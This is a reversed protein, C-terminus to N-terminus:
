VSSNSRKRSHRGLWLQRGCEKCASWALEGCERGVLETEECHYGPEERKEDETDEFMPITLKEAETMRDAEKQIKNTHGRRLEELTTWQQGKHGIYQRDDECILCHAPPTDSEPYQVGCTMCIFGNMDEWEKSEMLALRGTPNPRANARM